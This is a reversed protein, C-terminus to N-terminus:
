TCLRNPCQLSTCLAMGVVNQILVCQMTNFCLTCTLLITIRRCLKEEFSADMKQEM